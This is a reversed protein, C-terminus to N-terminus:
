LLSMGVPDGIPALLGGSGKNEEEQNEENTTPIHEKNNSM